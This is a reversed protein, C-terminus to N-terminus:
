TINKYFEFLYNVEGRGATAARIFIGKKFRSIVANLRFFKLCRMYNAAASFAHLVRMFKEFGDHFSKVRTRARKVLRKAMKWAVANSITKFNRKGDYDNISM